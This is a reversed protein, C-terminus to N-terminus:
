DAAALTVHAAGRHAAVAEAEGAIAARMRDDLPRLPELTVELRRGQKRGRWTAAPRGDVLVLGASAIARWL